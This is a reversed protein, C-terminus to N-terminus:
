RVHSHILTRCRERGKMSNKVLINLNAPSSALRHLVNYPECIFKIDDSKMNGDSLSYIDSDLSHYYQDYYTLNASLDCRPIFDLELGIVEEEMSKDTRLSLM